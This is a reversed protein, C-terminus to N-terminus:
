KANTAASATPALEQLLVENENERVESLPSVLTSSNSVRM